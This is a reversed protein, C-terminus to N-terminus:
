PPPCVVNVGDPAKTAFVWRYVQTEFGPTATRNPLSTASDDFSNSVDGNAPNTATGYGGYADFTWAPVARETATTDNSGPIDVQQAPMNRAPLAPDYNVFWRARVTEITIVDVLRASLPFTPHVACEAPVDVVTRDSYVIRDTLIRPPTITGPPYDPLPQPLPCGALVIALAVAAAARKV